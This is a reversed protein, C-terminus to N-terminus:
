HYYITGKASLAVSIPRTKEFESCIILIVMTLPVSLFAGIFGWIASWVVLSLMVVFTSLNMSYGLLKPELIDGIVFHVVTLGIAIVLFPMLTDFQVLSLIAPFAVGLIAGIIPIYGLFFIIVAWFESFSLGLSKFFIYSIIAGLFALFTKVWLYTKIRQIIRGNIHILWKQTEKDPFMQEMKHYFFKLDYSLFAVYLIVLIFSATLDTITSAFHTIIDPISLYNKLQYWVEQKSINFYHLIQIIFNDIRMQYASTEEIVDPITYFAIAIPFLFFCVILLVSLVYAIWKAFKFYHFIAEGLSLILTTLMLAIVVPIIINAGQILFWLVIWIAGLIAFIKVMLEYKTSNGNKPLNSKQLASKQTRSFFIATEGLM